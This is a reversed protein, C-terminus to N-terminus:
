GCHFTAAFTLDFQDGRAAARLASRPLFYTVSVDRSLPHFPSGVGHGQSGEAIRGVRGASSADQEAGFPRSTVAVRRSHGEDRHAGRVVIMLASHVSFIRSGTLRTALASASSFYVEQLLNRMKLEMDEVLKGVNVIHSQALTSASTTDLQATL